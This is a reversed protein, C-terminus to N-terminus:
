LAFLWYKVFAWVLPGMLCFCAALAVLVQNGSINIEDSAGGPQGSVPTSKPLSRQSNGAGEDSMATTNPTM